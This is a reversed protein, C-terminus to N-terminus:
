RKTAYQEKSLRDALKDFANEADHWTGGYRAWRIDTEYWNYDIPTRGGTPDVYDGTIRAGGVGFSQVSLGPTNFLQEPTPHNPTADEIILNLTGGGPRLKVKREISRKLGTSLTDFERAGYTDAKKALDPGISVKIDAVVPAAVASTALSLSLVTSLIIARM